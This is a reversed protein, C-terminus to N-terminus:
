GSESISITTGFICHVHPQRAIAVRRKKGRVILMNCPFLKLIGKRASADIKRFLPARGDASQPKIQEPIVRGEAIQQEHRFLVAARADSARQKARPFPIHAHRPIGGDHGRRLRFLARLLKVGRSPIAVRSSKERVALPILQNEDFFQLLIKPFVFSFGYFPKLNSCFLRPLRRTKKM